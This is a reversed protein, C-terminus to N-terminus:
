EVTIAAPLRNSFLKYLHKGVELVTLAIVIGLVLRISVALGDNIRAASAVDLGYGLEVLRDVPLSVLAPGSVMIALILVTLVGIVVAIWRQLATWRGQAALWTKHGAQLIWLISLFPLYRFFVDALFSIHVPEGNDIFILGVWQPYFNFLVLALITMVVEFLTGPLSVRESDPAAKMKRPDWPRSEIRFDPSAFQIIAFILVVISAARFAADLVGTIVGLVMELVSQEGGRAGLSAGIALAALVTVVALVIRLTNLFHPFLEPGILFRPPLYSAAMREPPGLRTLVAVTMEDDVPRGAAKSEDDLADEIMSRIESEIDARDKEPLRRGVEKTYINILDMENEQSTSARAVFGSMMFKM